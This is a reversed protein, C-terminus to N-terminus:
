YNVGDEVPPKNQSYAYICYAGRGDSFFHKMYYVTVKRPYKPLDHINYGYPKRIEKAAILAETKDTYARIFGM